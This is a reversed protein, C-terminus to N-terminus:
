QTHLPVGDVAVSVNQVQHAEGPVPAGRWLLILLREDADVIVTDLTTTSTRRGAPRVDVSCSPLPVRPLRFSLEGTPTINTAGVAEDGRLPRESVLGPSGANFFRRDFDHPLAPMRTRMWTDDYTGSLAARPQWDPSTFGFGTPPPTDGFNRLPHRPDEVNPLRIGDEFSGRARRFGTGVPNRPEFSHRAADSLTRDWGGFAREYTLPMREFPAPDTSVIFGGIRKVWTRDGVVRATKQLHGLRFGVELERTGRTRAHASGILAVDTGPKALASEPEYKYSSGESSGWREGVLNVPLQHEALSLRGSKEICYTAKVVPVVVPRGDEDTLFVTELAFPTTNDIAPHGM